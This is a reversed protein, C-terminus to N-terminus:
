IINKNTLASNLMVLRRLNLKKLMDPDVSFQISADDEEGEVFSEQVYSSSFKTLLPSLMAKKKQLQSENGGKKGVKKASFQWIIKGDTTKKVKESPSTNKSSDISNRSSNRNDM